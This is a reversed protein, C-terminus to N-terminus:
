TQLLHLSYFRLGTESSTLLLKPIMFLKAMYPLIVINYVIFVHIYIKMTPIPFMVFNNCAYTNWM